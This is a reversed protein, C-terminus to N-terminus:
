STRKRLLNHDKIKDPKEYIFSNSQHWSSHQTTTHKAPKLQHVKTVPPLRKALQIISLQKNKYWATISNDLHKRVQISAKPKICDGYCKEVQFVQGSFSFTWDPQIHREYEWCFIQNLDIGKIPRHASVPNRAPKEFKSNLKDIFGSDL